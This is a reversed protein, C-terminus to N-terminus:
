KIVVMKVASTTANNVTLSYHYVGAALNAVNLDIKHVGIGQEGVIKSAVVKGTVDYVNLTVSANKELEYSIITNSSAPNPMNQSLIAGSENESIGVPLKLNLRIMPLEGITYWNDGPLYILAIGDPQQTSKDNGLIVYLNPTGSAVGTTVIAAVYTSGATLATLPLPFNVWGTPATNINYIASTAIETFVGAALEYIKAQVATGTATSAELYASISSANAATTFEYILGIRADDQDGGTYYNPSTLGTSTGNDRAYVTDTVAFTKVVTNNAIDGALEVETQSVLFTTTYNKITSPPTFAPTAIVLTDVAQYAISSLVPSNQNYVSGAGDSISVNLKASTQATSGLNSIAARFTIPAVQSTPTQTYYGGDVYSFDSYARDIGLDNPSMSTISVDDIMWSYACGASAGMATPSYFQFRIWVTAQGGATASINIKVLDPNGTLAYDNNGLPTNVGYKTWTTGNNSVFVFTSDYFRRYQQQFNLNVFASSACNISSATTINAVQNGSCDLDSDFLGFGNAATTSLIKPIAFSGTPGVSNIVWLGAGTPSAKTWNSPVSFDDSWIVALPSVVAPTGGSKLVTSPTTNKSAVTHHAFKSDASPLKAKGSQGFMATSLFFLSCIFTTKKM